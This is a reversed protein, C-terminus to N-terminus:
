GKLGFYFIKEVNKSEGCRFITSLMLSQHLFVKKSTSIPSNFRFDELRFSSFWTLVLIQESREGRERVLFWEFRIFIPNTIRQFTQSHNQATIPHHPPWFHWRLGRFRRKIKRKRVPDPRGSRVRGTSRFVM